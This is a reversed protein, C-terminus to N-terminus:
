SKVTNNVTTAGSHSAKVVDTLQKAYNEYVTRMETVREDTVKMVHEAYSAKQEAVITASKAKEIKLDAELGVVKDQLRRMEVNEQGNAKAREIEMDKRFILQQTEVEKRLAEKYEETCNCKNFLM